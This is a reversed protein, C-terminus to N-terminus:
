AESAMGGNRPRSDDAALATEGVVHLRSTGAGPPKGDMDLLARIRAALDERAFPKKVLEVGPEGGGRDVIVDQPYGTMFVVKLGPQLVRAQDALRRGNIGPMVVDTLLLHIRRDTEALMDLARVAKDAELVHYNLERLIETVYGLVNRDDEAVLITEGHGAPAAAIAPAKTRATEPVAVATFHPLFLRVTTGRGVVSDIAISGKSQRAFGYAMSLGLGTGKGAAKTTFFPEFARAVTEPSMGIGSDSVALMVYAGPALNNAGATEDDLEVDATQIELRGGRPMADHANIVLNLVVTELQNADCYCPPVNEGLMFEYRFTEGQTRRILDTMGGVLKNVDIATPRLPQKQGFALLRQTLTAARTAASTAAAVARRARGENSGLARGTIELNGIIATLLNNFDHAIGGTLRGISETKQLQHLNDETQRLTRAAEKEATIDRGSVYLLGDEATMTWAIWRYAGDKHLFRNEMRLTGIGDALRRRGEIATAADEPHRLKSVHMAKIEDETWGLTRTWAPNLSIFHGDFTGVGLLDESVQWIRDRERTRRAALRALRQREGTALMLLAGLLSTSLVGAILVAMSQWQRHESLYLATPASELVYSRGGFDFDPTTFAAAAATASATSLQDFLAQHADRDTLRVKLLKDNSGLLQEVLADGRLALALVGAGNPGRPVAVTLLLGTPSGKQEILALPATATVARSEVTQDVAARRVPDAALDLGYLTMDRPPALYTIPYYEPRAGARHLKGLEDRERIAYDHIFRRELAEFAARHSADIRPAWEVARVAPFRKLLDQTLVAFDRRSVADPDDFSRALQDLLVGYQDLRSDARDALQQSLLRFELLSQDSEWAGVRVFIGVFLAFFLLMPVAVPWLRSRWVARPEGFAVMVLPLFFLVGLTDGIWWTFWSDGFDLAPVAGLIALGVLSFTASIAGLVPSAGFFRALDSGSDLAAPYGVLRRLVGGGIAAQATSAGAIVFAAAIAGVLPQGVGYYGIWLNLLFSGLFTWPLTFSGGILMAAMAIGAPPFVPTAYGPPVALLLGLRGSVVYAVTLAVGAAIRRRTLVHSLSGDIGLMPGVMRLRAGLIFVVPSFL